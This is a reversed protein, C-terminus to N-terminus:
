SMTAQSYVKGLYLNIRIKGQCTPTEDFTGDAGCTMTSPGSITFGTNCTVEYTAEYDVTADTPSVSAGSISPKDCTNVSFIITTQYSQDLLITRCTINKHVLTKM